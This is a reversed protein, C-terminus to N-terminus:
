IFIKCKESKTMFCVKLIKYKRNYLYEIKLYFKFVCVLRKNINSNFLSKSM